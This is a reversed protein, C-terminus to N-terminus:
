YTKKSTKGSINNLRTKINAINQGLDYSKGNYTILVKDKGKGPPYVVKQCKPMLNYYWYHANMVDDFKATKLEIKTGNEGLSVNASEDFKYNNCFELVKEYTLLNVDFDNEVIKQWNPKIVYLNFPEDIYKSIGPPINTQELSDDVLENDESIEDNLCVQENSSNTTEIHQLDEKSVINENTNSIDSSLAIDIPMYKQSINIKIGDPQIFDSQPYIRSSILQLCRTLNNDPQQLNNIVNVLHKNLEKLIKNHTDVTKSLAEYKDKTDLYEINRREAETANQASMTKYFQNTLSIFIM